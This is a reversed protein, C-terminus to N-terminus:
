LVYYAQIAHKLGTKYRKGGEFFCFVVKKATNSIVYTTTEM